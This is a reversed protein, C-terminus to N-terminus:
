KKVLISVSIHVANIYSTAENDDIATLMVRYFDAALPILLTLVRADWNICSASQQLCWIYCIQKCTVDLQHCADMWFTERSRMYRMIIKVNVVSPKLELNPSTKKKEKNSQQRKEWNCWRSSKPVFSTRPRSPSAWILMQFANLLLVVVKKCGNGTM